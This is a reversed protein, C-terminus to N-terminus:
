RWKEEATKPYLSMLFDVLDNVERDAMQNRWGPMRFPPRPGQPDLRGITRTGDLILKRLEARTYGEATYIVAPIQQETEANPNSIGGKGDPGHCLACGYTGYVLQGRGSATAAVEPLPERVAVPDPASTLARVGLTLAVAATLVLLWVRV